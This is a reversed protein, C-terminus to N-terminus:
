FASPLTSRLKLQAKPGRPGSQGQWGLPGKWLRSESCRDQLAWLPVERAETKRPDCQDGAWPGPATEGNRAKAARAWTSSSVSAPHQVQGPTHSDDARSTAVGHVTARWAGRGIPNGLCSYQLSNGHGGGPSTGWGPISSPTGANCASQKGDSGGPCPIKIGLDPISGMSGATFVHLRLWQVM